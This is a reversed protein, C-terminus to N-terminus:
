FSPNNARLSSDCRCLRRQWGSNRGCTSRASRWNYEGEKSSPMSRPRQRRSPTKLKLEVRRLLAACLPDGDDYGWAPAAFDLLVLHSLIFSFFLFIFLFLSRLAFCLLPVAYCPLALFLLAFCLLTFCLLAFWVVFCFLCFVVHSRYIFCSRARNKWRFLCCFSWPFSPWRWCWRCYRGRVTRHCRRGHIM